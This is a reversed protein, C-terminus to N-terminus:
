AKRLQGSGQDRRSPFPAAGFRKSSCIFGGPVFAPLPLMERNRGRNASRRDLIGPGLRKLTEFTWFELRSPLRNSVATLRLFCVMRSRELRSFSAYKEVGFNPRM